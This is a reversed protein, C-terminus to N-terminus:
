FMARVPPLKVELDVTRSDSWDGFTINEWTFHPLNEKSHFDNRVDSGTTLYVHMTLPIGLPWAPFAQTLIAGAVPVSTAPQGPVVEGPVSAVPPPPPTPTPTKSGLFKTALPRKLKPTAFIRIYNDM